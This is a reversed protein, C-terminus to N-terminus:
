EVDEILAYCDNDVQVTIVELNCLVVASPLINVKPDLSTGDSLVTSGLSPFVMQVKSSDSWIARIRKMRQFVYQGVGGEFTVVTQNTSQNGRAM